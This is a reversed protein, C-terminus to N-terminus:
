SNGHAHEMLQKRLKSIPKLSDGLSHAWEAADQSDVEDLAGNIANLGSAYGALGHVAAEIVRRANVRHPRGIAKDPLTIGEANAIERVRLVGVGIEEAIQAARYGESALRTIEAVREARPKHGERVKQAPPNQPAAKKKADLANFAANLSMEGAEVKATLEPSEKLVRQAMYVYRPSTEVSAAAQEASRGGNDPQQLVAAVPSQTGKKLGAAQRKRAEEELMPMLKAVAITRQSKTLDRRLNMSRVFAVPEDGEYEVFQPEIGVLDCARLRNRGDLVMGDLLTIPVRLGHTEIDQALDLLRAEGLLPFAATAPHAELDTM